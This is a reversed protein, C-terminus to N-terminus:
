WGAFVHILLKKGDQHDKVSELEGTDSRPLDIVPFLEGVKLKPKTEAFLSNTLGALLVLATIKKLRM